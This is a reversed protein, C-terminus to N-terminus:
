LYIHYRNSWFIGIIGGVILGMVAMFLLSGLVTFDTDTTFAYITLSVTIAATMLAAIAVSHPEYQITIAGRHHNFQRQSVCNHKRCNYFHLPPHLQHSSKQGYTPYLRPSPYFRAFNYLQGLNDM